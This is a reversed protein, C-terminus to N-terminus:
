ALEDGLVAFSPDTRDRKGWGPFAEQVVPRIEDFDQIFIRHTIKWSGDKQRAWKDNYRGKGTIEIKGGDPTKQRLVVTVYTESGATDGTVRITPNALQHSHTEFAKHGECVWDIFGRGTGQFMAGYDAVSDEAFVSYGLAHDMRDMSRCYRYLMQEIDLRDKVERLLKEDM